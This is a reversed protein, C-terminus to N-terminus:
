IKEPNTVCPGFSAKEAAVFYKASAGAKDILRKLGDIDGEGRFVADISTPANEHFDQEAAVVDLIGRETRLGLGYGADRKLTAFTLGRPMHEAGRRAATQARAPSSSAVASAAAAAGVLTATKLFTRRDQTM